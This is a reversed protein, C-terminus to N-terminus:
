GVDLKRVGQEANKGDTTAFNHLGDETSFLSSEVLIALRIAIVLSIPDIDGHIAPM